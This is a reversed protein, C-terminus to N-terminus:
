RHVCSPALLLSHSHSVVIKPHRKSSYHILILTKLGACPYKTLPEQTWRKVALTQDISKKKFIADFNYTRPCYIRSLKKSNIRNQLMM